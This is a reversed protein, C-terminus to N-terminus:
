NEKYTPSIQTRRRIAGRHPLPVGSCCLSKPILRTGSLFVRFKNRNSSLGTLFLAGQPRYRFECM